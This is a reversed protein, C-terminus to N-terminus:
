CWNETTKRNEGELRNVEWLISLRLLDFHSVALSSEQYLSFSECLLYLDLCYLGQSLIRKKIVGFKAWSEATLLLIFGSVFWCLKVSCMPSPLAPTLLGFHFPALIM